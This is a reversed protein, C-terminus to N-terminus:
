RIRGITMRESKKREELLAYFRKEWEVGRTDDAYELVQWVMGAKVVADFAGPVDWTETNATYITGRKHYRWKFTYNSGPKPWFRVNAADILGVAIPRGTTDTTPLVYNSEIGLRPYGLTADTLYADQIYAVKNQDGAAMAYDQGANTININSGAIAMWHWRAYTTIIDNITNSLRVEEASGYTTSPSKLHARAHTMTQTLTSM